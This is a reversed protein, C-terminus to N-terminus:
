SPIITHGAQSEQYCPNESDRSWTDAQSVREKPVPRGRNHRGSGVGEYRAAVFANVNKM